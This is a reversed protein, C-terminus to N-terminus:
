FYLIIFDHQQLGNFKYNNTITATPFQGLTRVQSAVNHHRGAIKQPHSLYPHPLSWFSYPEKQGRHANM